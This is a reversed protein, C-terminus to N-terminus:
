NETLQEIDWGLLLENAKKELTKLQRVKSRSENIVVKLNEIQETTTKIVETLEKIKETINMYFQHNVIM